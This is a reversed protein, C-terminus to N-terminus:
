SEALIHKDTQNPTLSPDSAYTISSPSPPWDADDLMKVALLRYLARPPKNRQCFVYSLLSSGWRDNVEQSFPHFLVEPHTLLPHHTLVSTKPIQDSLFRRLLSLQLM